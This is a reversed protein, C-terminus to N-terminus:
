HKRFEKPKFPASRKNNERITVQDLHHPNVCRKNRCRHDIVLDPNLEGWFDFYAVRYAKLYREKDTGYTSPYAHIEGYGDKKSKGRWKWCEAPLGVGVKHWFTIPVHFNPLSAFDFAITM